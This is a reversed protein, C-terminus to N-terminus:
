GIIWEPYFVLEYQLTKLSESTEKADMDFLFEATRKHPFPIGYAKKYIDRNLEDIAKM